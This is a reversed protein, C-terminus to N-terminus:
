KQTCEWQYFGDTEGNITMPKTITLLDGSPQLAGRWIEAYAQFYVQGVEDS